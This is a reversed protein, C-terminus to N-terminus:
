RRVDEYGIPGGGDGTHEDTVRQKWKAKQRNILWFIAAETEPPRIRRLKVIEVRERVAVKKGDPDYDIERLKIAQVEEYEYGTALDYLKEAIKIDAVIKGARIAERFEPHAKQWRYITAENVGFCRAMEEDTAGLKCLMTAQRCHEPRYKTPRGPRGAPTSERAHARTHVRLVGRSRQLGGGIGLAQALAESTLM